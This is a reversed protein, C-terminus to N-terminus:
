ESVMVSEVYYFRAFSRNNADNIDGSMDGLYLVAKLSDPVDYPKFVLVTEGSNIIDMREQYQAEYYKADGNVIAETVKISNLQMYSPQPLNLVTLIGFVVAVAAGGLVYFFRDKKHIHKIAWGLLYFWASYLYLVMMYWSLDFVRAAGGNNQAYFTPCSASAFVGFGIAIFLLPLRFNYEIKKIMKVYLPTIALLGIYLWVNNWGVIYNYAQYLSKLVAKVPTTGFSTAQRLANGPAIVSILFGALIFGYSVGVGIVRKKGGKFIILGIILFFIIILMPMLSAYNAGAIIIGLVSMAVVEVVKTDLLFNILIGFFILTLAFFGTYYMSGNYWYFAEGMVPVFEVFMFAIVSSIIIWEKYTAKMIRVVIPYLLVFVSIILTGILITPYIKYFTDGLFQPSLHMLYMASYTGQWRFYQEKTGQAAAGFVSFINGEDYALKAKLGYFFDDGLAHNYKGLLMLPVTAIVLIAFSIISVLLMKDISKNKIKEM